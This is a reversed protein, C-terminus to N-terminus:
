GKAKKGSQHHKRHRSTRWVRNRRTQWVISSRGGGRLGEGCLVTVSGALSLSSDQTHTHTRPDILIFEHTQVRSSLSAAGPKARPPPSRHTIRTFPSTHASQHACCLWRQWSSAIGITDTQGDAQRGGKCHAQLVARHILGPFQTLQLYFFFYATTSLLPPPLPLRSPLPTQLLVSAPAPPCGNPNLLHHPFTPCAYKFFFLFRQQLLRPTYYSALHTSDSM